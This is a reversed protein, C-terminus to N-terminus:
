RSWSLQDVPKVPPVQAVPRVPEVTPVPPVSVVPPVVGLNTAGALFMSVHGSRDRIHGNHWWGIHRGSYDYVNGNSNIWALSGGRLDIIRGNNGLFAVANGIRNYLAKM